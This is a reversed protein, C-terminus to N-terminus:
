FERREEALRSRLTEENLDVTLLLRDGDWRATATGVPCQISPDLVPMIATPVSLRAGGIPIRVNLIM